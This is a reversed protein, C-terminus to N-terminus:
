LRYGLLRNQERMLNRVELLPEIALRIEPSDELLEENRTAFTYRHVPGVKLGQVRLIGRITNERALMHSVLQKRAMLTARMYQAAKNKVHVPRFHGLRM